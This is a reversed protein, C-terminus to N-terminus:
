AAPLHSGGSFIEVPVARRLIGRLHCDGSVTVVSVANLM